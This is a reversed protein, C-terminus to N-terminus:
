NIKSYNLGKGQYIKFTGTDQRFFTVSNDRGNFLIGFRHDYESTVYFIKSKGDRDKGVVHFKAYRTTDGKHNIVYSTMVRGDKDWVIKEELTQIDQIVAQDLSDMYGKTISVQNFSTFSILLLVATILNKM